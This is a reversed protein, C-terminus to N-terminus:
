KIDTKWFEKKQWLVKVLSDLANKIASIVEDRSASNPSHLKKRIEKDLSDSVFKKIEDNVIAKVDTKDM